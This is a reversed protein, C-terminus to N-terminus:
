ILSAVPASSPITQSQDALRAQLVSWFGDIPPQAAAKMTATAVRTARDIVCQCLLVNGATDLAYLFLKTVDPLDGSAMTFIFVGALHQDLAEATVAPLAASITCSKDVATSWQTWLEQFKEQTMDAQPSLEFTDPAPVPVPAGASAAPPPPTFGGLLDVESGAVPLLSVPNAPSATVDGPAPEAHDMGNVQAGNVAAGLDQQQKPASDKSRKDAAIFEKARKQYIVALTNFEQFLADKIQIEQDEAFGSLVQKPGGASALLINQAVDVNTRLLRYYFLARDHVDQSSTDNTAAALLRGLMKHVEPPRKFFLTCTCTLLALKVVASDGQEYNDIEQELAYPAEVIEEGYEGLMWLVAAKSEPEDVEQLCRPLIPLVSAHREPYRRLLDKLVLLAEARVYDIDLDLLEVLKEFAAGEFGSPLKFGVKGIAQIASRALGVDVESVYVSLEELIDTRNNVNTLQALLSVKLYKVHLPENFKTYFQKYDEDFIGPCRHILLETHKLLCYVLEPSGGAVLTLVPAKIREYLQQHVHPLNATLHIFVKITTLVVGSNTTRLVPDLLNMITFIEQEDNPSYRTVLELVQHLGWENFDNLRELLHHVIAQNVAMGGEELMMENLVMICNAVVGGDPDQLMDYILDILNSQKVMDPQLHFLKLIGMVGTRRVYANKDVLSKRIPDAIYEVISPLRLSCLSRLALGRVMPDDNNCDRHLTNICMLAMDPHEQAYNVLYLYVMKKVVLDKTEVCMVMESFLRSVDIGLTMYAIVKKITERKKKVDKEVNMNKLLARLENVEGKKSDVFYGAPTAKSPSQAPQAQAM